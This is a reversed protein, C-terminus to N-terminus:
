AKTGIVAFDRPSYFWSDLEQSGQSPGVFPSGAVPNVYELRVNSFGRYGVIFRITEPFLPKHHTPDSYFNCAGVVLNTPNPTEFIIVGGPRLVRATEDLFDILTEFSLHEIFHFATVANLSEDPLNTLYTLAEDEIVELELNRLRGVLVANNEVGRAEYGQDRLLELWEGRGCGVDLIRDVIGAGTLIPLYPGLGVKIDERNGRFEDAFAAFLEDFDKQSQRGNRSQAQPKESEAVQLKEINAKMEERFQEFHHAMKTQERFLGVVQQHQLEAFRKQERSLDAIEEPFPKTAQFTAKGLRNIHSAMLDQQALTYGELQRRRRTTAPLRLVAVMMELLYGIFPVQFLRKYFPRPKLDEVYVGRSEGEPSFRLSALIDIKDYRGNRLSTLFQNLGVEDPERKLIARYANWIFTQDHYQLLDSIHYHADEKPVFEPQLELPPLEVQEEPTQEVSALFNRLDLSAGALSRQGNTERQAVAERIEAMLQEVNIESNRPEVMTMKVLKIQSEKEGTKLLGFDFSM